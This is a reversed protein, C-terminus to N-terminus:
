AFAVVWAEDADQLRREAARRGDPIELVAKLRRHWGSQGAMVVPLLVHPRHPRCLLRPLESLSDPERGALGVHMREEVELEDVLPAEGAPLRAQDPAAPVPLRRQERELKRRPLGGGATWLSSECTRSRHFRTASQRARGRGAPRSSRM